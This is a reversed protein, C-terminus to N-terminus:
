GKTKPTLAQPSPRLFERLVAAPRYGELVAGDSPRVLVPTGTFGNAKAFAENADLGKAKCNKRPAPAQGAYARHLAEAPDAACLM